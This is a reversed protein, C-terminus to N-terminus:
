PKNLRHLERLYHNGKLVSDERKGLKWDVLLILVGVLETSGENVM